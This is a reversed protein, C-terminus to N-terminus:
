KSMGMYSIYFHRRSQMSQCNVQGGNLSDDFFVGVTKSSVLSATGMSVWVGCSERSVITLDQRINCINQWSFDSNSAVDSGSIYVSGEGDVSVSSLSLVCTKTAAYASCSGIALSGLFSFIKVM